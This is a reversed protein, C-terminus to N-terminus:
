VGLRVGNQECFSLAEESQAVNLAIPKEALIQKGREAAAKVQALLEHVPTATYVAQIEPNELLLTLSEFASAGRYKAALESRRQAHIETLGVFRAAAVRLQGPISRRDAIGGADVVTWGIQKM